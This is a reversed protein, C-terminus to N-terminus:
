GRVPTNLVRAMLQALEESAAQHLMDSAASKFKSRDFPARLRVVWLGDPLQSSRGSFAAHIHRKLLSRTVARRAHRKPVVTGLWAGRLADPTPTAATLLSDDVASAELRDVSTSLEAPPVRKAPKKPTSPNAALHHVVFHSSRARSPSGLVRLFDASRVIRGIM